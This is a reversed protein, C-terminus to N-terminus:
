RKWLGKIKKHMAAVPGSPSANAIERFGLRKFFSIAGPTDRHVLVLARNADTENILYECIKSLSFPVIWLGRAHPSTFASGLYADGGRVKGKDFPTKILPSELATDFVLFYHVLKGEKEAIFCKFGEKGILSIYRKDEEENNSLFPFIDSEIRPIDDPVAPRVILPEKMPFSLAAKDLLLEFYVFEWQDKLKYRTYRSLQTLLEKFGESFLVRVVRCCKEYFSSKAVSLGGM